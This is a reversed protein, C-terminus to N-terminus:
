SGCHQRRSPLCLHTICASASFSVAPDTEIAARQGQTGENDYPMLSPPQATGLEALETDRDTGTNKAACACVSASSRMEAIRDRWFRPGGARERLKAIQGAVRLLETAGPENRWAEWV